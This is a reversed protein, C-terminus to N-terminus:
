LAEKFQGSMDGHEVTRLHPITDSPSMISGYRPKVKWAIDACTVELTHLITFISGITWLMTFVEKTNEGGLEMPTM